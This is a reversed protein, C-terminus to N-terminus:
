NTGPLKGTLISFILVALTLLLTRSGASTKNVPGGAKEVKLDKDQSEWGSDSFCDVQVLVCSSFYCLYLMYSQSNYVDM